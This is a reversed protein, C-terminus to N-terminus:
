IISKYVPLKRAKRSTREQIFMYGVTSSVYNISSLEVHAGNEAKVKSFCLYIVM